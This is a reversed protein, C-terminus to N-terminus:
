GQGAIPHIVHAADGILALRPGIFSQALQLKLPFGMLRDELTVTGLTSGMVGEIELALQEPAMALFKPAEAASETWVLSSRNGPLPLSAFPGAPRFHEYAVGEHPLEHAIT